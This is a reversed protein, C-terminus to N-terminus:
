SRGWLYLQFKSEDNHEELIELIRELETRCHYLYGYRELDAETKIDRLLENISRYLRCMLTHTIAEWARFGQVLARKRREKAQQKQMARSPKGTGIGLYKCAEKFSLTKYKMIFAIADGHEHCGFCYFTQREVDVKFSPTKESHFPCRAWLKGGRQKLEVDHAEIVDVIDPKITILM